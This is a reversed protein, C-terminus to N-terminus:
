EKNIFDINFYLAIQRCTEYVNSGVIYRYGSREALNKIQMQGKTLTVSRNRKLEVLLGKYGGSRQHFVLDPIGAQLGTLKEYEKSMGKGGTPTHHFMAFPRYKESLSLLVSVVKKHIVEEIRITEVPFDFSDFIDLPTSLFVDKVERDREASFVDEVNNKVLHKAYEEWNSYTMNIPDRVTFVPRCFRESVAFSNDPIFGCVGWKTLAIFCPANDLVGMEGCYDVSNYPEHREDITPYKYVVPFGVSLRKYFHYSHVFKTFEERWYRLVYPQYPEHWNDEEDTPNSLGGVGCYHEDAVLSEVANDYDKKTVAKARKRFHGVTRKYSVDKSSDGCDDFFKRIDEPTVFGFGYGNDHYYDDDDSMNSVYDNISLVYDKGPGWNEKASRLHWHLSRYFSEDEKELLRKMQGM